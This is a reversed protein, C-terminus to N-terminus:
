ETQSSIYQVLGDMQLVEFGHKLYEVIFLYVKKNENTRNLINKVAKKYAEERQENTFNSENYSVLYNFINNTYISSYILSENRFDISDLYQNQFIEKREKNSIYGDLMVTKYAKILHTVFLSTDQKTLKNLFLNREMQLLNYQNAIKITENTYDGKHDNLKKGLFSIESDIIQIRKKFSFWLENEKSLMVNASEDPNKFDTELVIDEKNFIFDLTQPDENMVRAYGSQGMNIRYMGTLADAPLIYQVMKNSALTSDVPLFNDGKLVGVVVVDQAPQNKIYIKISYPQAFCTCTLFISLLTLLAKQNTKIM